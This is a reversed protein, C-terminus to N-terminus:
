TDSKDMETVVVDWDPHDPGNLCEWGGEVNIGNDHAQYLLATLAESLEAPTGPATGDTSM